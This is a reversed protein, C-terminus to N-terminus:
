TSNMAMGNSRMGGSTLAVLMGDMFIVISLTDLTMPLLMSIARSDVSRRSTVYRCKREVSRDIGCFLGGSVSLIIVTSISAKLTVAVAPNGVHCFRFNGVAANVASTKGPSTIEHALKFSVQPYWPSDPALPRVGIVAYPEGAHHLVFVETDLHGQDDYRVVVVHAAQDPKQVTVAFARLPQLHVGGGVAVDHKDTSGHVDSDPNVCVAAAHEMAQPAVADHEAPVGCPVGVDHSSFFEKAM